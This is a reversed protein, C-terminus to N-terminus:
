KWRNRKFFIASFSFVLNLGLMIIDFLPSYLSLRSQNLKKGARFFIILMSIMRIVFIAAAILAITSFFCFILIAALFVYFLGQSLSFLGLLFKFKPRYHKGTTMHRRKQHFWKGLTEKPLSLTHADPNVEIRVNRRTATQNIFLDDDGSSVLYHSTFGKVRYFVERRYALNRGVGMYAQGALAYSLYQLAIFFSDYRILKNLLGPRKRYPGYGLVIETAPDFGSVMEAIWRPSAPRCDADSMLLLNHKAERIGISLPFKKGSFFNVNKQLNIVTLRTHQAKMGHLLLETDDDSGDNVVLVEFDPYDQELFLPLNEELNLYENKACIVISVPPTVEYKKRPKGLALRSFFFWYYFLQILATLGFAYLLLWDYTLPVERLWEM